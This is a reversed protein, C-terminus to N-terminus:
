GHTDVRRATLIYGDLNDGSASLLVGEPVPLVAPRGVAPLYSIEYGQGGARYRLPRAGYPHTRLLALYEELVLGRAEMIAAHPTGVYRFHWPEHAIGTVPPKDAPYRLVFGYQPALRRFAACAGADPFAPCVPDITPANEALDAALGTQHESHGPKAVFRMTFARGNERLSGDYLRRQEQATRYGSAVTIRGGAGAACLARHLCRAATRDLLVDPRGPVPCLRGRGPEGHLPASANVLVLAGRHVDEPRLSLAKM